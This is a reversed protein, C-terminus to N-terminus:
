WWKGLVERCKGLPATETEVLLSTDVEGFEINPTVDDPERPGTALLLMNTEQLQNHDELLLNSQECRWVTYLNDDFNPDDESAAISDALLQNLLYSLHDDTNQLVTGEADLTATDFALTEATKIDEAVKDITKSKWHLPNVQSSDNSIMILYGMVSKTQMNEELNGLSADAFVEIHLDKWDGLSSFKLKVIDQKSTM